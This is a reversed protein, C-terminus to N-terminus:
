NDIRKNGYKFFGGFLFLYKDSDGINFILGKCRRYMTIPASISDFMNSMTYARAILLFCSSTCTIFFSISLM